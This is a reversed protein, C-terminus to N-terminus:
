GSTGRMIAEITREAGSLGEDLRRSDFVIISGCQPCKIIPNKRLEGITVVRKHDCGSFRVPIEYSDFGPADM